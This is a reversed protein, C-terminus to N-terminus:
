AYSANAECNNVSILTKINRLILHYLSFYNSYKSALNREQRINVYVLVNVKLKKNMNNQLAKLAESLTEENFMVDYSRHM